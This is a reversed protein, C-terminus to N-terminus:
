IEINLDIEGAAVCDGTCEDCVQGEGCVVGDCLSTICVSIVMTEEIGYGDCKVKVTIDYSHNPLASETTTYTLIGGESVTVSSFASSFATVEYTVDGYNCETTTIIGTLDLTGTDGCSNVYGDLETCAVTYDPVVMCNGTCPNCNGRCEADCPNDMCVYVSATASLLSCPCDVKYKIEWLKGQEYYNGTTITIVGDTTISATVGPAEASIISYVVDCNKCATAINLEALDIVATDGCPTPADDCKIIQSNVQLCNTCSPTPTVLSVGCGCAM